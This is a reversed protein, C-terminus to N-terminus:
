SYSSQFRRQVNKLFLCLWPWLLSNSLVPGWYLWTGINAQNMIGWFICQLFLYGFSVGGVVMSQQWAPLSRIPVQFRLVCYGMGILFCAHEGLPTGLLLDLMVGLVFMAGLNVREPAYVLWFFGILVVWLPRFERMGEPLPFITLMMGAFFSFVIWFWERFASQGGRSYRM